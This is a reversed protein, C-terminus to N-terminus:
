RRLGLTTDCFHRPWELVSADVSAPAWLRMRCLGEQASQRLGHLVQQGKREPAWWSACTRGEALGKRARAIEAELEDEAPEGVEEMAALAQRGMETKLAEYDGQDLKGARYDYEADRLGRLAATKRADRETVEHGMRELSACEGRLIPILVFLIVGAAVLTAGLILM